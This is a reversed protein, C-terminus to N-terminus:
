EKERTILKPINANDYNWVRQDNASLARPDM